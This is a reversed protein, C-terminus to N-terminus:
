RKTVFEFSGEDKLTNTLSLEENLNKGYSKAFIICRYNLLYTCRSEKFDSAPLTPRSILTWFVSCMRSLLGALREVTSWRTILSWGM